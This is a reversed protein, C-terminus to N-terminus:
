DEKRNKQTRGCGNNAYYIGYRKDTRKEIKEFEEIVMMQM